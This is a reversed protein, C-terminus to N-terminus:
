VKPKWGTFNKPWIENKYNKKKSFGVLSASQANESVHCASEGKESSTVRQSYIKKHPVHPM